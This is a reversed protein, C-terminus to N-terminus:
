FRRLKWGGAARVVIPRLPMKGDTPTVQLQLEDDKAGPSLTLELGAGSEPLPGLITAYRSAHTWFREENAPVVERLRSLYDPHLV